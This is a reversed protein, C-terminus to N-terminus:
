ERWKWEVRAPDFGRTNGRRPARKLAIRSFLYRVAEKRQAIGMAEWRRAIDERPTLLMRLPPPVAVSALRQEAKKLEPGLAASIEEFDEIEIRGKNYSERAKRLRARLADIEARAASHDETRPATLLEYSGPESLRRIVLRSIYADLWPARTATCGKVCRYGPLMQQPPWPPHGALVAGCEGCVALHSLMYVCRGPRTTKRAPDSLVLVAAHHTEESVLPVWEGDHLQGDVRWYRKAIYAPNMAIDRVTERHWKGGGPGPIGRENLDATLVSVPVGAAIREKIERVVPGREHHPRQEILRRTTEDYIREYGYLIRGHPRGQAVNARVGRKVRDSLKEVEIAADVGEEAMSRYDRWDRMSYARDQPTVYILTGTERCATLFPFWTDPTRDARSSEWMVVVGYRGEKVGATLREWEKRARTAFRSASQQETFVADPAVTWGHRECAERNEKEQDDTSGGLSRRPDSVRQIIAAIIGAPPM